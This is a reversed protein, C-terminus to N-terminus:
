APVYLVFLWEGIVPPDLLQFTTPSAETVESPRELLGNRFVLLSGGQYAPLAFTDSVGDISGTLDIRSFSGGGGGGGGVLTQWAFVDASNKLCVEFADATGPGPTTKDGPTHWVRGWHDESAIPRPGVGWASREYIARQAKAWGDQDWETQELFAPERLNSPKYLAAGSGVVMHVNDVVLRIVYTGHVDPTFKRQHAPLGTSILAASSDFPKKILRFQWRQESGLNENSLIVEQGVVLGSYPSEVFMSSDTDYWLLKAQSAM